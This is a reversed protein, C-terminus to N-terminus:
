QDRTTAWDVRRVQGKHTGTPVGKHVLVLTLSDVDLVCEDLVGVRSGGIARVCSGTSAIRLSSYLCILCWFPANSVPIGTLVTTPVVQTFLGSTSGGSRVFGLCRLNDQSRVPTTTVVHAYRILSPIQGKIRLPEPIQLPESVTM